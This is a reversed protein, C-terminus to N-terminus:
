ILELRQEAYNGDWGYFFLPVDMDLETLSERAVKLERELDELDIGIAIKYGSFGQMAAILKQKDIYGWLVFRKNAANQIAGLSTSMGGGRMANARSKIRSNAKKDFLDGSLWIEGSEFRNCVFEAAEDTFDAVLHGASPFEQATATYGLNDVEDCEMFGGYVNGGFREAIINVQNLYYDRCERQSIDLALCRKPQWSYQTDSLYTKDKADPDVEKIRVNTIFSNGELGIFMAYFKSVELSPCLVRFSEGGSKDTEFYATVIKDTEPAKPNDARFWRFEIKSLGVRPVLTFGVEWLRNVANARIKELDFVVVKNDGGRSISNTVKIDPRYFTNKSLEDKLYLPISVQWEKKHAKGHKTWKLINLMAKVNHQKCLDIAAQLNGYQAEWWYFEM